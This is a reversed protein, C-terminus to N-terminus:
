DKWIWIEATDIKPQVIDQVLLAFHVVGLFDVGRSKVGLSVLLLVASASYTNDASSIHQIIM